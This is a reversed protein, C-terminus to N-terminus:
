AIRMVRLSNRCLRPDVLPAMINSVMHSDYYRKLRHYLERDSESISDWYDRKSAFTGFEEVIKSREIYIIGAQGSDWQDAFCGSHETSLALGGHDYGWVKLVLGNFEGGIFEQLAVATKESENPLSYRSHFLCLTGLNDYERPSECDQDRIIKATKM